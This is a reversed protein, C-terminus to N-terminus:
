SCFKSDLMKNKNSIEEMIEAIEPSIDSAESINNRIMKAFDAKKFEHLGKTKFIYELNKVEPLSDDLDVDSISSFNELSNDYVVQVTKLCTGDYM